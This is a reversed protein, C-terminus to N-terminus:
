RSPRRLRYLVHRRLPDETALLPHDFDDRADRTMGLREMVARSRVNSVTTFSVLENLGLPDEFAHGIVARAAETAFGRGWASRSFRWGIEVCPTFPAEFRPIALGAFGIFGDASEVAWLGWGREALQDSARDIFEDSQSRDLTSPFFEMVASDANLLAFPERDADIWQRLVLRETRIV